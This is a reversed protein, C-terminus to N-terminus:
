VEQQGFEKLFAALEPGAASLSYREEVTKRGSEGILKRMEADRILAVLRELWEDDSAALLGNEGDRIIEGNVGYPSAVVPIGSAMYVLVKLGCKGKSWEGDDLPALGIDFSRLQERERDVSWDECVTRVGPLTVTGAGVIKLTYDFQEALRQLVPGMREIYGATTPSGMWGIVVPGPRAYRGPDPLYYLTNVVTPLLVVNTSYESAVRALYANGAIVADALEMIRVFQVDIQEGAPRAGWKPSRYFIADDFDFIIKKKLLRACWEIVPYFSQLVPKQFFVVDYLLMLPVQCLRKLLVCLMGIAKVCRNKSFFYFRHLWRPVAPYVHCIIRSDELYPIYQCVRYRSAAGWESAQTFFAVRLSLEKQPDHKSLVGKRYDRWGRAMMKLKERKEDEFLLVCLIEKLLRLKDTVYFSPWERWYRSAVYLRNRTKYYKRIPAHHTPIFIWHQTAAGLQHRLVAQNVRVILYGRACLRLCYEVDVFDIFLEELFPGVAEYARLNLLSGSTPVIRPFDWPMEARRARCGHQYHYPAIIGVKAPEFGAAADLMRGVMGPSAMSDQDMTLLYEYGQERAKRAGVNLARAIGENGELRVYVIAPDTKLVEVIEPNVTDSNDVAILLGIQSLYSQISELASSDPNYLVVVGAIRPNDV